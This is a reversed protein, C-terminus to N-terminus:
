QGGQHWLWKVAEVLAGSVADLKGKIFEAGGRRAAEAAIGTLVRATAKLRSTDTHLAELEAVTARLMSVLQTKLLDGLFVNDRKVAETLDALATTLAALKGPLEDRLRNFKMPSEPPPDVLELRAQQLRVDLFPPEIVAEIQRDSPAESEMFANWLAARHQLEGITEDIMDIVATIVEKSNLDDFLVDFSDVYRVEFGEESPVRFPVKQHCEADVMLKKIARKNRNVFTRHEGRDYDFADADQWKWLEGRFAELKGIQAETDTDV